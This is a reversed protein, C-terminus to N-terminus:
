LHMTDIHKSLEELKEMRLKESESVLEMLRGILQAKVKNKENFAELADKYEKEKKQCTQGLPKLEKNVIDIKKRVSAVEKVTPDTLSELEERIEALRKTEEEVRGLQAQVKQSVEMKKKEIEEEKLRFTNLASRSMEEDKAEISQIDMSSFSSSINSSTTQLQAQQHKPTQM